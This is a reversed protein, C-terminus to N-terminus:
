SNEYYKNSIESAQVPMQTAVHNHVLLLDMLLEKKTRNFPKILLSM